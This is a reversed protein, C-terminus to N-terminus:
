AATSLSGSTVTTRWCRPGCTPTIARPMAAALIHSFYSSRYRPPVAALDMQEQRLARAEFSDVDRPIDASSLSHWHMDLLAAALLESM